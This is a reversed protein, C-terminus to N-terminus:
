LNISFQFNVGYGTIGRERELNKMFGEMDRSRTKLVKHTNMLVTLESRIEQIVAKMKKYQTSKERLTAAYQKFDDKKLYKTGKTIAYEQEKEM